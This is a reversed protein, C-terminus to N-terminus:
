SPLGASSSTSSSSRGAQAIILAGLLVLGGGFVGLLTLPEGWVAVGVMVAVLPEVLTLVSAQSAQLRQLGAYFLLAPLSGCLVGGGVLVLLPMGEVALGGSMVLAAVVLVPVSTLKSWATVEFPNFSGFLGKGIFVTAAYFVASLSALGAGYVDDHSLELWPRLLLVLGSLAVGLAVLTSPRRREGLVLPSLVAVLVPTLYHCLVAIAVTTKQMAQFFCLANLADTVGLVLMWSWARAGRPGMVTGAAAAAVLQRRRSILALPGMVALITVFVVATERSAPLPTTSLAEASRFVISWCGWLAAALVLFVAGTAGRASGSM